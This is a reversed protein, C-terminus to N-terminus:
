DFLDELEELEELAEFEGLGDGEVRPEAGNTGLTPSPSPSQVSAPAQDASPTAPAPPSLVPEVRSVPPLIQKVRLGIMTFDAAVAEVPYPPTTAFADEGVGLVRLVSLPVQVFLNCLFFAIAAVVLGALRGGWLDPAKPTVMPAIWYLQWLIWGLGVATVLAVARNAGSRFCTLLQRQSESLQTPKLALVVLSFIYFPRQWQMWLIPLTGAIAVILFELDLPLMPDGVALAVLCIELFIPAAAIGALHVWVYPDFWFSRM